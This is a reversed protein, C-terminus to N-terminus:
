DRGEVFTDVEDDSMPKWWEPELVQTKGKLTGLLRVPPSVWLPSGLCKHHTKIPKHSFGIPIPESRDRPKAKVKAQRACGGSIYYL